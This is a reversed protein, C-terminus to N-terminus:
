KNNHKYIINYNTTKDNFIIFIYFFGLIIFLLITNNNFIKPDLNYDLTINLNSEQIINSFNPVNTINLYYKSINQNNLYIDTINNSYINLKSTNVLFNNLYYNSDIETQQNGSFLSAIIGILIIIFYTNIM